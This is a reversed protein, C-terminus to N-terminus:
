PAIKQRQIMDGSALKSSVTVTDGSVIDTTSTVDRSYTAGAPCTGTVTKYSYPSPHMVAIEYPQGAICSGAVVDTSTTVTAGVYGVTFTGDSGADSAVVNGVGPVVPLGTSTAWGGAVNYGYTGSLYGHARTAGGSTRLVASLLSGTLIDGSFDSSGLMVKVQPVYEYVYFMDGTSPTYQVEAYDGGHVDATATTDKSWSGSSGVTVPVIVGPQSAFGISRTVVLSLAASAPGLGSFVDTARNIRMSLTPVAVTRTTAGFTAKVKMGSLIKTGFCPTTYWYGSGDTTVPDSGLVAGTGDLLYATGSVSVPGWGNMCLSGLQVSFRVTATATAPAALLGIGMAAAVLAISLRRRLPM